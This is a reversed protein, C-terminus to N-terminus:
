RWIIENLSKINKQKLFNDKDDIFPLIINMVALIDVSNNNVM